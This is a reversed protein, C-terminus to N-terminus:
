AGVEVRLKKDAESVVLRIIQTDIPIIRTVSEANDVFVPMEIGWHRSLTDIIELGANIRGANNAFAFPVLRGDETPVMVECDEKLGGNIQEVFLRFRVKRFKENIKSTLMSVKTKTFLECLYVGHELQEYKAALEKERQKLEEIRELQGAAARLMAKRDKEREIEAYLSQIEDTIVKVAEGAKNGAECEETKYADIQATITRYENTQEFPTPTVMKERLSEIETQLIAARAEKQVAKVELEAISSRAAEIMDKNAEKNGRANLAALRNSKRVNFNERLQQINDEPLRQGCMQCTEAGADFREAQVKTYEKMLQERLETMQDVERQKRVAENRHDKANNLAEIESAKKNSIEALISSNINANQTAYAEKAEALKASGEAIRQRIEAATTDGALIRAKQQELEARKSNLDAIRTDIKEPDIGTTDPIARHAEDIRGPIDQIQKNIDSKTVQAIKKYDEVTYRQGSTGPMMLLQPLDQLEPTSAIVMDDDIDGCVELLIKRRTDWPLQEPFYDPMTLMKMKEASGCFAFLMLQFDREKTPVGDIYYDVGHGDFEETSSGKKKKYIEHYVKKLTVIRGDIDFQAEAAHDLYHVDGDPGKTKPTFNKASTAPKDFLLWTLANFLTTKGTANDGYVSASKGDFRFELSRIGQFNELKLTKLKM